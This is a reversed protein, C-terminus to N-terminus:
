TKLTETLKGSPLYISINTGGWSKMQLDHNKRPEDSQVVLIREQILAQSRLLLDPFKLSAGWQQAEHYVWHLGLLEVTMHPHFKGVM